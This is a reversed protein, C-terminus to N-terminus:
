RPLCLAEGGTYCLYNVRYGTMRVELDPVNDNTVTLDVRLVRLAGSNSVSQAVPGLSVSDGVSGTVAVAVNYSELGPVANGFQDVTGNNDALGDYDCVRVYSARSAPKTPCIQTDGSKYFPQKLIEELYSEAVLIAQQRFVPDDAGRGATAAVVLAVMGALLSLVMIFIVLEVITVGVQGCRRPSGDFPTQRRATCM